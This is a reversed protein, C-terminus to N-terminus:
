GIHRQKEHCERGQDALSGTGDGWGFDPLDLTPMISGDFGAAGSRLGTFVSRSHVFNIPM